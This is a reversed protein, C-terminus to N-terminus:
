PSETSVCTPNATQALIGRLLHAQDSHASAYSTLWRHISALDARGAEKCIARALTALLRIKAPSGDFHKGLSPAFAPFRNYGKALHPWLHPAYALALDGHVLFYSALESEKIPDVYNVTYNQKREELTTSETRARDQAAVVFLTAGRRAPNSRWVRLSEARVDQDYGGATTAVIRASAAWTAGDSEYTKWLAVAERSAKNRFLNPLIAQAFMGNKKSLVYARARGADAEDSAAYSWFDVCNSPRERIKWDEESVLFPCAVQVLRELEPDSLGRPLVPMGRALWEDVIGLSFAIVDFGIVRRPAKSQVFTRVLELQEEPPLSAAHATLWAGFAARARVFTANTPLRSVVVAGEDEHVALMYRAEAAIKKGLLTDKPRATYLAIMRTLRSVRPEGFSAPDRSDGARLAILWDRYAIQEDESLRRPDVNGFRSAARERRGDALASEIGGCACDYLGDQGATISLVGDRLVTETRSATANVRYTFSRIQKAEELLYAETEAIRQLEKGFGLVKREIFEVESDSRDMMSTDIQPDVSHGLLEAIERKAVETRARSRAIDRPQSRGAIVVTTERAGGACGVVHVGLAFCLLLFRNALTFHM